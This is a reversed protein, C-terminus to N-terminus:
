YVVPMKKFYFQYTKNQDLANPESNFDILVDNVLASIREVSGLWVKNVVKGSFAPLKTEQTTVLNNYPLYLVTGKQNFRQVPGRYVKSVFENDKVSGSIFNAQGLFKAVSLDNPAAELQKPTAIQKVAGDILIVIKKSLLYAENKYHTVFVITVPFQSQIKKVFNLMEIRLNEDLSSFPEDMLLLSPRLIMARALAVRQRQGGSLEDPYRKLLDSIGMVKTMEQLRQETEAKDVKKMRLGFTINQSVTMHPFLLYEQFVMIGKPSQKSDSTFEGSSPTDIRALINLLTTKGSGSPGLIAVISNDAINLDINKLIHKHQKVQNIRNLFYLRLGGIM